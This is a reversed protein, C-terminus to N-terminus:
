RTIGEMNKAREIAKLMDEKVKKVKVMESELYQRAEDADMDDQKPDFQRMWVNMGNSASDLQLIVSEIESKQDSSVSDMKTKLKQKLVYIDSMKPMVEDHVRIVEDYLEQNPSNGAVGTSETHKHDSKQCQVFTLLTILAFIKVTRQMPKLKEEFTSLGLL